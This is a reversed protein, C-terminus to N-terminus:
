APRAVARRAPVSAVAVVRGTAASSLAADIVALAPLAHWLDHEHRVRGERVFRLFASLEDLYSANWDFAADRWIPRRDSDGASQGTVEGAVLDYELWGRECSLAATRHLGRQLYDLHIQSTAGGAHRVMLDAMVDVELPLSRHPTLFCSAEIPPGLMDIALHIEHVLTRLVGGGLDARAFYARRFDEAPHWDPLWHGAQCQFVLPAGLSGAAVQDRMARVGPHFPLNHGVFSVIRRDEIEELLPEVDDLSAALPKEIFLGRVHPALRRAADVHLSTPNCVFGIDPRADVIEDWTTVERVGLSPDLSQTYGRRTRLAVLDTVGLACLNRIHRQGISGAGVIAARAVVHRQKLSILSQAAFRRRYDAARGRNIAVVEPHGDLYRLVSDLGLLPDQPSVGAVLAQLFALDEPYDLTMRVDPRHHVRDVPLDCVRFLDTDTFYGGWAETHETDKIAVATALAAPRLGYSFAGHPLDLARILDAGTAEYADVIRDAYGPDVLPCDATINLLYDAGSARGAASLRALVDNEDGRFCAVGERAATEELRDDQPHTSTCVVIQDIRRARRLRDIMHGLVTRGALDLLAKQPLRTSKLRATILFVTKM